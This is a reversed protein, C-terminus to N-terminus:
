GAPPWWGSCSGMSKDSVWLAHCRSTDREKENKQLARDKSSQTVALRQFNGPPEGSDLKSPEICSGKSSDVSKKGRPAGRM